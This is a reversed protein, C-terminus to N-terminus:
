IYRKRYEVPSIGVEEKFLKCFHSDNIYGVDRAITIIKQNTDRLKEKAINMRVKKLCKKKKMGEMITNKM